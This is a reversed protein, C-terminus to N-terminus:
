PIASVFTSMSEAAHGLGGMANSVLDAAGHPRTIIYWAAFALGTVKIWKKNM